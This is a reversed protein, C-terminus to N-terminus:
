AMARLWARVAATRGAFAEAVRLGLGGQRVAERIGDEDTVDDGVFVPLRGRYPERAMFGAVARGKHVDADRLEFAMQAGLIQFRRDATVLGRLLQEIAQAYQPAQRYHVAISRAKEEVLVGPWAQAATRIRAVWVLPVAEGLVETAGRYRLVAGHEGGCDLSLPYLLRDLDAMPRGSVVALAGDLFDRAAALGAILDGPVVVADPREAIELLTGDLDLFLAWNEQLSTVSM